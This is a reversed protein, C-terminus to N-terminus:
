FARSYKTSGNLLTQVIATGAFTAGALSDGSLALVLGGGLLGLAIGRDLAYHSAVSLTGREGAGGVSLALGAIVGGLLVSAALGADSFGVVFPAAILLTGILFELAAHTSLSFLRIATM